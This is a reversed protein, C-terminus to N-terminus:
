TSTSEGRPPTEASFDTWEHDLIAYLYSDRWSGKQWVHGHIYGERRMNCKELVRVSGINRPDCTAVIRHLGLEQFGFQLLATATETAFGQRWYNKNFCYGIEATKHEPRRINIGCGGVIEGNDRTTVVFHFNLRPEDSQQSIAMQIFRHTEGPTNPGWTMFRLTQTDSAYAHVGDFDFESYERLVLRQTTLRINTTMLM